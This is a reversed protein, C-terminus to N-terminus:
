VALGYKKLAHAGLQRKSIAYTDAGGQQRSVWEKRVADWCADCVIDNAQVRPAPLQGLTVEYWIGDIRRLQRYADINRRDVSEQAKKKERQQKVRQDWSVFHRNRLLIGTRPHVFLAINADKLLTDKCPWRGRILVASGDPTEVWDTDIAVFDRIHQLIHQQVTSRADITARIDSYVKNWPRDVQRELYRKLPALNENM